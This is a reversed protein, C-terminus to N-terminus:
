RPAREAWQKWWLRCFCGCRMSRRGAKALDSGDLIHPMGFHERMLYLANGCQEESGPADANILGPKRKCVLTAFVTGDQFVSTLEDVSVDRDLLLKLNQCLEEPTELTRMVLDKIFPVVSASNMDVFDKVSVGDISIGSIDAMDLAM